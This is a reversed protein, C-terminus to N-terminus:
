YEEFQEKLPAHKELDSLIQQDLPTEKIVNYNDWFDKNYPRDQFQLGYNRMKETSRIRDKADPTVKNILLEQFLETEFRLENTAIDYWNIRSTVSMFSPYMKGQVKRYEITKKIGAFKSMLDKRKGLYGDEFGQEFEFRIISFDETDIFIRMFYKGDYTVVYTEHDNYFSNQQRVMKSFVEEGDEFHRYRVNNHLLLDELLNDQDFYTTFRSEYGLSQRVEVLRVSERLKYKNRPEEYNEDYIRVAAELLSIYTGGVKKVDRYFADLLFPKMPYNQEIRALAIELIDQGSLTDSVVVPELLIPSKEMKIVHPGGTLSWVPAEFNKYGLMSIVMVENRYQAPMHFDFEGNINSITGIAVSKLGVSAYGLPEGSEKDVITASVTIDQGMCLFPQAFFLILLLPKMM